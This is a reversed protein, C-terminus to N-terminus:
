RHPGLRAVFREYINVASNEDRDMVLACNENACRYTRKWLPMDQLHKCAHCMRTTDREDIIYLEKGFRLCKYTLMQVFGYLGWDNYVIRNRLQRKRRGKPTEYEQKKIVM